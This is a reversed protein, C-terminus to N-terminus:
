AADFRVITVYLRVDADTIQEGFLYPGGHKQDKLHTEVRDLAEFLPYIAEEYAQQTAAFGTKYVGNNILSYVWENFEDIEDKLNAPLLGGHPKNAERLHDPILEDFATYM